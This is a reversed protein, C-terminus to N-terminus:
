PFAHWGSRELQDLIIERMDQAEIIGGEPVSGNGIGM